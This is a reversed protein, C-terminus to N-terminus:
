EIIGPVVDIGAQHTKPDVQLYGLCDLEKRIIYRAQDPISRMDDFAYKGLATYEEQELTVKVNVVM